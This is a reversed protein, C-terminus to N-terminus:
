ISVRKQALIRSKNLVALSVTKKGGSWGQVDRVLLADVKKSRFFPGSFRYHELEGYDYWKNAWEEASPGSGFVGYKAQENILALYEVMIPDTVDRMDVVRADPDLEVQIVGQRPYGEAYVTATEQDGLWIVKLDDAKPKLRAFDHHTGHYWTTPLGLSSLTHRHGRPNERPPDPRSYFRPNTLLEDEFVDWELGDEFRVRYVCLWGEKQREAAKLGADRAESEVEKLITVRQHSHRWAPADASADSEFCHYEFWAMDGPRWQEKTGPAKPNERPSEDLLGVFELYIEPSVLLIDDGDPRSYNGIIRWGDWKRQLAMAEAMEYQGCDEDLVGMRVLQRQLAKFGRSDSVTAIDPISQTVRYVLIRANPGGQWKSFYRAVGPFDAFWAPGDPTGGDEEFAEEASTGHYLLTGKRITTRRVLSPNPRSDRWAKGDESLHQEEAHQVKFDRRARALLASALGQRRHGPEVYVNAVIATAGDRTVVQLGAVPLGELYYLYRVSGHPSVHKGIGSNRVRGSEPGIAPNEGPLLLTRRLPEQRDGPNHRIRPDQPDFTGVNDVSKIQTPYFAVAEVYDEETILVGDYGAKILRERVGVTQFVDNRELREGYPMAYDVIYPNQLSLYAVVVHENVNKAYQRALPEDNSFYFGQGWTGGEAVYMLSFEDIAASGGHYMVRPRGDKHVVKSDAFWRRFAETQPARMTM